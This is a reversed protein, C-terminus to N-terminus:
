GSLRYLKIVAAPVLNGEQCRSPSSQELAAVSANRGELPETVKTALDSTELLAWMMTFAPYKKFPDEQLIQSQM